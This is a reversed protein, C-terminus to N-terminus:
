SSAADSLISTCFPCRTAGLNVASLCYGCTKTSPAPVALRRRSKAVMTNIPKVVFFFIVAAMLVFSLLSNLFDGLLFVSKHATFQLSSFNFKGAIGVLPTIMDKVLATVLASFGAGIVIGVALDVVNGRLVFDKFEKALKM